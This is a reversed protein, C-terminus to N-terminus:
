FEYIGSMLVQGEDNYTTVENDDLKINLGENVYAPSTNRFSFKKLFKNSNKSQILNMVLSAILPGQVILDKYNEKKQAYNKDFHIRHSNFTLASFRFLMVNNPTITVLETSPKISNKEEKTKAVLPNKYVLTQIEKIMLVKDQFYNHEIDVFLLENSNKGIKKEIKDIESIRIIEKNVILKNHFNIESSAWMRQELNVPPLFNGRKIHGDDSLNEIPEAPLTLCWHIGLLYSMDIEATLCTKFKSILSDSIVDSVTEKKNIWEEYM